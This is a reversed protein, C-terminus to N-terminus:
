AFEIDDIGISASRNVTITVSDYNQEFPFGYSIGKPVLAHELSM